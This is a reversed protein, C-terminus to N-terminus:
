AAPEHIIELHDFFPFLSDNDWLDDCGMQQWEYGEALELTYFSRGDTVGRAITGPHLADLEEATTITRLKMYGAALLEDALLFDQTAPGFDRTGFIGDLKTSIIEALEDRASM